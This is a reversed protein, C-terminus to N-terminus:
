QLGALQMQASADLYAITVPVGGRPLAVHQEPSATALPPDGGLLWRALRPADELRVCGNSLTRVDKAFLEKKPTDHLFIGNANALNFKMQGMSNAPGPRQRVKVQARGDAVAQWDVSEPPYVEANPDNFDSVVEYNRAALYAAGEQVVHPAILKQALDAPVNWYPNLTAYHLVSRLAPTQAEPKGVIVKMSDRVRGDEMMYLRASAADVLIYRGRAPFQGDTISQVYSQPAVTGAIPGLVPFYQGVGYAGLALAIIAASGIVYRRKLTSTNLGM